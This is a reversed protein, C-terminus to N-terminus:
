ATAFDNLAEMMEYPQTIPVSQPIRPPEGNLVAIYNKIREISNVSNKM